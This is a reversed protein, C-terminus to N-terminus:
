RPRDGGVVARFDDRDFIALLRVGDVRPPALSYLSPAEALRAFVDSDGRHRPLYLGQRMLFILYCPRKGRMLALRPQFYPPDLGLVRLDPRLTGWRRHYDFMRVDPPPYILVTAGEPLHGNMWDLVEVTAADWYYTSEMGAAKAGRPGGLFANYYSLGFPQIRVTAWGATGLCGLIVGRALWGGVRTGGAMRLLTRGGLAALIPLFFFASVLQRLGDHAPMFALVRMAPLILFHIAAWGGIAGDPLFEARIEGRRSWGAITVWATAILGVAALLLLGPPVMTGTLVASNHWPLFKTRSDYVTGFYAVPVKQPFALFSRGWRLLAAVPRPWLYPNIAIVTAPVTPVAWALVRLSGRPRYIGMWLVTAPLVLVGMVKSGVALGGLVGFAWAGRGTECARLAAVAALFWVAGLNSDSTFIQADALPRPDSLLAGLAVLAPTWGWRKRVVRFMVGAAVAFSAVTGLRYGRLPGVIRAFVRHSALGLFCPVPGHSDPPERCFQWGHELVEPEFLRARGEPPGAARALWDAIAEARDIYYPEDWTMGPEGRALWLLGVYAAVAAAVALVELLARTKARNMM